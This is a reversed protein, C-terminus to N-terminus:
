LAGMMSSLVPGQSIIFALGAILLAIGLSVAVSLTRWISPGRKYADVITVILILFCLVIGLGNFFFIAIIAEMILLLVIMLDLTRGITWFPKNEM